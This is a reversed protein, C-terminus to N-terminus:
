SYPSTMGALVFAWAGLILSPALQFVLSNMRRRSDRFAVVLPILISLGLLVIAANFSAHRLSDGVDYLQGTCCLMVLNILHLTPVVAFTVDLKKQQYLSLILPLATIVVVLTQVVAFSGFIWNFYNMFKITGWM